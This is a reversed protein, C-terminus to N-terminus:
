ERIQQDPQSDTYYNINKNNWNRKQEFGFDPKFGAQYHIKRNGSKNKNNEKIGIVGNKSVASIIGIM